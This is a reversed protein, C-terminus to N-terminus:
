AASRRRLAMLRTHITTILCADTHVPGRPHQEETHYVPSVEGCFRCCFAVEDLNPDMVFGILAGRQWTAAANAIMRGEAM